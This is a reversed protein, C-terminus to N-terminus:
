FEERLQDRIEEHRALMTALMADMTPTGVLSTRVPIEATRGPEVTVQIITM